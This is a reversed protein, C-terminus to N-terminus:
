IASGARVGAARRKARSIAENRRRLAEPDQAIRRLAALSAPGPKVHRVEPKKGDRIMQLRPVIRERLADTNRRTRGLRHAIEPITYGELILRVYEVELAIEAETTARHKTRQGRLLPALSDLNRLMAEAMNTKARLFEEAQAVLPFTDRSPRLWARIWLYAGKKAAGYYYGRDKAPERRSALLIALAAEQTADERDEPWWASTRRMVASVAHRAIAYIRAADM